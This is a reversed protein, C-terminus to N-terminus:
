RGKMLGSNETNPFDNPGIASQTPTNSAAGAVLEVAAPLGFSATEWACGTLTM